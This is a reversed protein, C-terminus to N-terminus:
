IIRENYPHLYVSVFEHTLYHPICVTLLLCVKSKSKESSNNRTGFIKKEKENKLSYKSNKLLNRSARPSEIGNEVIKKKQYARHHAIAPTPPYTEHYSLTPQHQAISWHQSLYTNPLQSSPGYLYEFQQNLANQVFSKSFEAENFSPGAGLMNPNDIPPNNFDLGQFHHKSDPKSALGENGCEYRDFPLGSRDLYVNPGPGSEYHGHSCSQLDYGEQKTTAHYSHPQNYLHQHGMFMNLPSHQYEGRPSFSHSSQSGRSNSDGIQNLHGFSDSEVSSSRRRNKRNQKFKKNSKDNKREFKLSETFSKSIFGNLNKGKTVRDFNRDLNRQKTKEEFHDSHQDAHNLSHNATAPSGFIKSHGNSLNSPSSHGYASVFEACNPNLKSAFIGEMKLIETGDVAAPKSIASLRDIKTAEVRILAKGCEECWNVSVNNREMCDPCVKCLDSNLECDTSRINNANESPLNEKGLTSDICPKRLYCKATQKQQDDFEWIDFLEENSVTPINQDARMTVREAPFLSEEYKGFFYRDKLECTSDHFGSDTLDTSLKQRRSSKGFPMPRSVATSEVVKRQSNNSTDAVSYDENSAHLSDVVEDKEASNSRKHENQDIGDNYRHVQRSSHCEETTQQVGVKAFINSVWKSALEQAEREDTDDM